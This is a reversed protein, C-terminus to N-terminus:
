NPTPILEKISKQIFKLLGAITLRCSFTSSCTSIFLRVWILTDFNYVCLVGARFEVAHQTREIVILLDKQVQLPMEYWDCEILSLYM